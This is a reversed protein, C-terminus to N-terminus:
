HSDVIALGANVITITLVLILPKIVSRYCRRYGTRRSNGGDYDFLCRYRSSDCSRGANCGSRDYDLTSGTRYGARGSNM